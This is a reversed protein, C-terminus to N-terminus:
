KKKATTKTTKSDTTNSASSIAPGSASQTAGLASTFDKNLYAPVLSNYWDSLATFEDKLTPMAGETNPPRAAPDSFPNSEDFGINGSLTLFGSDKGLIESAQEITSTMILDDGAPQKAVAAQVQWQPVTLETAMRFGPLSMPHIDINWNREAYIMTVPDEQYSLGGAEAGQTAIQIYDLFWGYVREMDGYTRVDGIISINDIFASLIQVVEGAYTPYSQVNLKYAWTIENVGTDVVLPNSLKPHSFQIVPM